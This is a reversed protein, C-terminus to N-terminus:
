VGRRLESEIRRAFAKQACVLAYSEVIGIQSDFLVEPLEDGFLGCGRSIRQSLSEGFDSALEVGQADIVVARLRLLRRLSFVREFIIDEIEGSDYGIESIDPVDLPEGNSYLRFSIGRGISVCLVEGVPYYARLYEAICEVESM